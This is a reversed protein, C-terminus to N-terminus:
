IVKRHNEIIALAETLENFDREPVYQYPEHNDGNSEIILLAPIMDNKNISSFLDYEEHHEDIDREIFEIQAEKLMEKFDQCFPCGKMTFVIVSLDM